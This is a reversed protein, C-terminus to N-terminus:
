FLRVLFYLCEFGKVPYNGRLSPYRNYGESRSGCMAELWGGGTEPVHYMGVRHIIMKSKAGYVKIQAEEEEEKNEEECIWWSERM